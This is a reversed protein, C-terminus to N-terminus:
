HYDSFIDDMLPDIMGIARHFQLKTRFRQGIEANRLARQVARGMSHGSLTKQVQSPGMTRSVSHGKWEEKKEQGLTASLEDTDQDKWIVAMGKEAAAERAAQRDNEITSDKMEDIQRPQGSVFGGPHVQPERPPNLGGDVGYQGAEREIGSSQSQFDPIKDGARPQRVEGRRRQVYFAKEQKPPPADRQGGGSGGDGGGKFGGFGGGGKARGRVRARKRAHYQSYRKRSRNFGAM